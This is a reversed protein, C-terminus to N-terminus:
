WSECKPFNSWSDFSEVVHLRDNVQADEGRFLSAGPANLVVPLMLLLLCFWYVLTAELFIRVVVRFSFHIAQWNILKVNSVPYLGLTVVSPAQLSTVAAM